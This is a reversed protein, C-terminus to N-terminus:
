LFSVILDRRGPGPLLISTTNASLSSALLPQMCPRVCAVLTEFANVWVMPALFIGKDMKSAVKVVIQMSLMRGYLIRWISIEVLMRAVLGLQIEVRRQSTLTQPYCVRKHEQAEEERLVQYPIKDRIQQYNVPM